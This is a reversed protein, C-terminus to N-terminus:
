PLVVLPTEAEYVLENIVFTRFLQDSLMRSGRQVVLIENVRNNIVQKIDSSHTGGTYVETSTVFQNSYFAALQNMQRQVFRPVEEGTKTLYFFIVRTSESGFLHLFRNLEMVNIPHQESVAVFVQEHTFHSISAPMGVVIENLGEIAQMAVSGAFIKKMLGSAKLGVFVLHEFDQALLNGLTELLPDESVCYSLEVSDPVINGAIEKLLNMAQENSEFSLEQKVDSSTMMPLLVSTKHVLLLKANADVAWESAYRILNSSTETLDVLVIFRSKM